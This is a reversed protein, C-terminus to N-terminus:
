VDKSQKQKAKSFSNIDRASYVHMRALKMTITVCFMKGGHVWLVEESKSVTVMVGHM